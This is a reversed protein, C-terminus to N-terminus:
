NAPHLLEKLVYRKGNYTGIIFADKLGKKKIKDLEKRAEQYTYYSGSTIRITGDPLKDQNTKKAYKKFNFKTTSHFLGLQITFRMHKLCLSPDLHALANKAVQTDKMGGKFRDMFVEVSPMCTDNKSMVALSSLTLKINQETKRYFATDPVNIDMTYDNYGKASIHMTYTHNAPVSLSYEGTITDPGLPSKAIAKDYFEIAVKLKEHSVSDTISGKYVWERPMFAVMSTKYIDFRNSDTTRAYYGYLGEDSTTFYVDDDPTNIPYGLNKPESWGDGEKTTIFIDYGGMTNHGKSSFYLTKGDPNMFVGDEDYQTNITKGLNEPKTWTSDDNMTSTYIDKGGMGGPRSSVFYMTKGDPSFCLSSENYISNITDSIAVPLTWGRNESYSTRYIDGGRSERILYLTNGDPTIYAGEDNDITNVPPDIMEATDWIGNKLLSIYIDSTYEGGVPDTETSLTSHRRSTFVFKKGDKSMLPRFDSFPGNINSNMKVMDVKVPVSMLESGNKCEEICKTEEPEDRKSGSKLALQYEVIASDWKYNLQYGRGLFYDIRSSIHKNIEYALRFYKLCKARNVGNLYCVGIKANLDANSPNISDAILFAALADGYEGNAIHQNGEVLKMTALKFGNLDNKFNSEKFKVDKLQGMVTAPIFLCFFLKSLLRM